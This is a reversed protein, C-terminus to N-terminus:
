PETKHGGIKSIKEIAFMKCIKTNLQKTSSSGDNMM